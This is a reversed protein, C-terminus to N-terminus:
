ARCGRGARRRSAAGSTARAGGGRRSRTCRRAILVEARERLPGPRRGRRRAGGGLRREGRARLPESRRRLAALSRGAGRARRRRRHPRRGVIFLMDLPILTNKMWFPHEATEDFLFLMGADPALERREMLGRAREADTRALEVSVVHRAGARTEVVVRPAPAVPEPARSACHLALLAIAAVRRARSGRSPATARSSCTGSTASAEAGPRAPRAARPLGPRAGDPPLRARHGVRLLGRELRVAELLVRGLRLACGAQVPSVICVLNECEINGSEFFDAGGSEYLQVPDPRPPSSRTPAGRSPARSGWTPRRAVQRPRPAPALVLVM